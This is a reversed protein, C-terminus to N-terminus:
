QNFHVCRYREKSRTIFVSDLYIAEIGKTIMGKTYIHGRCRLDKVDSPTQFTNNNM